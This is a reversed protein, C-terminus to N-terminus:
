TNKARVPGLGDIPRGFGDLVRGLLEPGVQIRGDDKRTTIQDGLELGDIEELPISLVRGNRFGIVQTRIRRNNKTLIECFDGIAAAPGNSEVVLGILETVTGTWRQPELRGLREL